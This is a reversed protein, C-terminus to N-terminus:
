DMQWKKTHTNTHLRLFEIYVAPRANEQRMINSDSQQLWQMSSSWNMSIAATIALQLAYM